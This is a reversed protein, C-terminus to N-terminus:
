QAQPREWQKKGDTSKYFVDGRSSEVQKWGPPLADDMADRPEAGYKRVLADFLADEHGRYQVLTSVVSPLKQPNYTQYFNLLRRRYVADLGGRTTLRPSGTIDTRQPSGYGAAGGLPSQSSAAKQGPNNTEWILKALQQEVSTPDFTPAAGAQVPAPSQGGPQLVPHYMSMAAAGAGPIMSARPSGTSQQPQIMSPQQTPAQYMSQQTQPAQPIYM